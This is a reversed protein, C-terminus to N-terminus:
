HINRESFFKELTRGEDKKESAYRAYIEKPNVEVRKIGLKEALIVADKSFGLSVLIGRVSMGRRRAELIYKYLQAVAEVGAKEDKVEILVDNNMVDKAYFDVYVDGIRYEREIIRLGDEILFPNKEIIDKLEKEDMYMIFEGTDILGHGVIVIYIEEFVVRLVERPSARVSVLELEKNNNVRLIVRTSGPQWNVPAFGMPRHVLFSGDQKVIIIRDGSELKSRGRGEYDVRCRGIIILVKKKDLTNKIALAINDVDNNMVVDIKRLGAVVM